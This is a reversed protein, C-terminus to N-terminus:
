YPAFMIPTPAPRLAPTPSRFLAPGLLPTQFLAAATAPRLTLPGPLTCVTAPTMPNPLFRAALTKTLHKHLALRTALAASKQLKSFPSYKPKPPKGALRDKHRRSSMHQKLQTESNVHIECVSCHFTKNQIGVSAKNGIRKPKRGTRNLAKGRGRRPPTSQGELISKHKAGANHAELQSASNVTVKCTTCYLHERSKREKESEQTSVGSDESGKGPSYPAMPALAASDLPETSSDSVDPSACEEDAEEMAPEPTPPLPSHEAEEGCEGSIDNLEIPDPCDAKGKTDLPPLPTRERSGNRQKQKHRSGELARLKRAHKHGKYHAEAQNLSNFRLHCINCSIFPRRKPPTPGGFTHNIVAKQVPDMANFNPFLSLPSVGNIRFTLLHKIDLHTQIPRGPISLSALLPGGHTPAGHISPSRGRNIQKLRKQHSKGNYHIQAQVASNLQINCVECLTFSPLRKERRSQLELTDTQGGECMPITSDPSHTPSAPRKM